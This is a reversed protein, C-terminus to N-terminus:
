TRATLIDGMAGMFLSTLIAYRIAPDSVCAWKVLSCTKTSSAYTIGGCAPYRAGACAAQCAEASAVGSLTAQIYGAVSM